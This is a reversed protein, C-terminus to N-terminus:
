SGPNLTLLSQGSQTSRLAACISQYKRLQFKADLGAAKPTESPGMWMTAHFGIEM